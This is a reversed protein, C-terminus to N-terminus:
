MTGYVSCAPKLRVFPGFGASAMGIRLVGCANLGM